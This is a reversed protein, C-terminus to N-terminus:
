RTALWELRQRVPGAPEAKLAAEVFAKAEPSGSAKAEGVFDLVALRFGVDDSLKFAKTTWDFCAGLNMEAIGDDKRGWYRERWERMVHWAVAVRNLHCYRLTTAQPIMRCQPPTAASTRPGAPRPERRPLVGYQKHLCHGRDALAQKVAEFGPFQLYAGDAGGSKGGHKDRETAAQQNDAAAGAARATKVAKSAAQVKPMWERMAKGRCKYDSGCAKQAANMEAMVSKLNQEAEQATLALAAALCVQLM